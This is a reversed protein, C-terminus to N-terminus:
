DFRPERKATFAEYARRFNPHMMCEAQKVAEVELASSLEMIAEADLQAKTVGLAASPGRALKEAIGRAEGMLQEKPVVRNYLGIRLAEAADIFDGTMLLEAARGQGVIRPLLWAAGM